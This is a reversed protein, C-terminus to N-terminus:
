RAVEIEFTRPVTVSTDDSFWIKIKTYHNKEDKLLGYSTVKLWEGALFARDDTHIREARIIM